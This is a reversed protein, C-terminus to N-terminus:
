RAPVDERMALAASVQTLSIAMLVIVARDRLGIPTTVDISDPLQRAETADLMRTNGKRAPICLVVCHRLVFQAVRDTSRAHRIEALRPKGTSAPVDRSFIAPRERVLVVRTRNAPPRDFSSLSACAQWTQWKEGTSVNRHIGAGICKLGSCDTRQAYRM